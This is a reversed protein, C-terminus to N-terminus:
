ETASPQDPTGDERSAVGRDGNSRHPYCAFRLVFYHHPVTTNADEIDPTGMATLGALSSTDFEFATDPTGFLDLTPDHKARDLVSTLATRVETATNSGGTNIAAIDTEAPM